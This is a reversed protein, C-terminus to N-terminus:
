RILNAFNTKQWDKGSTATSDGAKKMKMPATYGLILFDIQAKYLHIFPRYIITHARLETPYLM